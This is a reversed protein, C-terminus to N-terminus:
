KFTIEEIFSLFKEKTNRPCMVSIKEAYSHRKIRDLVLEDLAQELSKEELYEEEIMIGGGNKAIYQANNLQHNGSVNPSPVLIGAVEAKGLESLTIAGCRTIAIDAARLLTPMNDIYPVIKCKGVGRCLEPYSAQYEPYYKRGTSHIHRVRTNKVSYSKMVQSVVENLRKSGLSGGFSLILKENEKIGLEM